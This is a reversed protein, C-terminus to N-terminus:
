KSVLGSTAAVRCFWCEIETWIHDNGPKQSVVERFCSRPVIKMEMLLNALELGDEIEIM